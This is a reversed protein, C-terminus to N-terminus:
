EKKAERVRQGAAKAQQHIHGEYDVAIAIVRSAVEEAVAGDVGCALVLETARELSTQAAIAAQKGAYVVPDDDIRPQWGRGGGGGGGYGRPKEFKLDERKEGQKTEWPRITVDGEIEAGATPAPTAEKQVLEVGAYSASDRPPQKSGDKTKIKVRYSINTGGKAGSWSRPNADVSEVVWVAM